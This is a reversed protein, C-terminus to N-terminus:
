IDKGGLKYLSKNAKLGATGSGRRPRKGSNVRDVFKDFRDKFKDLNVRKVKKAM